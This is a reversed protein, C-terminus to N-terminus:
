LARLSFLLAPNDVPDLHFRQYAGRCVVARGTFAEELLYASDGPIGYVDLPIEVNDEHAGQPDLNVVAIVVNTSDTSVKTYALINPDGCNLFRLNVFEQLATNNRRFRNLVSIDQKINGPRNWDWVKYEYKESHLYEERGAIPTNECLEFGNYIGYASSLTGALVLRIRFAPRGGEQLLVPLIDPTNTFFNPQFYENSPYSQLETLYEILESKTNRWTFYTYSQTFGAKALARMM